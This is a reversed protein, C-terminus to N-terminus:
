AFIKHISYICMCVRAGVSARVGYHFVTYRIIRTFAGLLDADNHFRGCVGRLFYVNETFRTFNGTDPGRTHIVEGSINAGASESIRFCATTQIFHTVFAVTMSFPRVPPQRIIQKPLVSSRVSPPPTFPIFWCHSYMSRM